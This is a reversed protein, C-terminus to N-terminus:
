SEGGRARLEARWAEVDGAACVPLGGVLSMIDFVLMADEGCIEQWLKTLPSRGDFDLCPVAFPVVIRRRERDVTVMLGGVEVVAASM